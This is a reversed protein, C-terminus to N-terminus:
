YHNGCTTCRIDSLFEDEEQIGDFKVGCAHCFNDEVDVEAGCECLFSDSGQEQKDGCSRCYHDGKRAANGCKCKEVIGGRTKKSFSDETITLFWWDCVRPM